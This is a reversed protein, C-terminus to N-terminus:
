QIEDRSRGARCSGSGDNPCAVFYTAQKGCGTVGVTYEARPVGAYFSLPQAMERSIVQGSAAPCSMDSQARSVAMSVAGPQAQEIFPPGGPSTCGAAMLALTVAVVSFRNEM